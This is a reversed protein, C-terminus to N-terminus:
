PHARKCCRDRIPLGTFCINIHMVPVSVDYLKTYHISYSTIVGDNDVHTLVNDSCSKGIVEDASFGSIHEAAKNWYTIVRDKNVFYLGDHLDEVIKEFSLKELKM